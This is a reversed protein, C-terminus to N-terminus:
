AQSPLRAPWGQGRWCGFYAMARWCGGRMTREEMLSCWGVCPVGRIADAGKRAEEGIERRTREGGSATAERKM